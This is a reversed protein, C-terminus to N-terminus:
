PSESRREDIITARPIRALIRESLRDVVVAGGAVVIQSGGDRVLRRSAGGAAHVLAIGAAVDWRAPDFTIFGDVEGTAVAALDCVTSGFNRLDQVHPAIGALTRYADRRGARDNPVAFAVLAREAPTRTVGVRGPGGTVGYLGLTLWRARAPQIVAAAVIEGSPVSEAAVSVAYHRLGHTFNVTGDLPDIIWRVDSTGPSLGSEEALVADDGRHRAILTRIASESALDARTVPDAHGDRKYAVPQATGFGTVASAGARAAELALVQLDM